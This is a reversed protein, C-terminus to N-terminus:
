KNEGTYRLKYERPEQAKHPHESGAYVKLKGIMQHGLNGKPLMGRVAREIVREPHSELLDGAKISKLGGIYQTHHYYIKKELKKGTFAVKEANVVVVFDGSDVHPAYSTKHKGRILAAVESAVRGVPAGAADVLLWKRDAQAEEKSKFQTRM